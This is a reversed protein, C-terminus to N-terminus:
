YGRFGEPRKAAGRLSAREPAALRLMCCAGRFASRKAARSFNLWVCAHLSALNPFPVELPHRFNQLGM